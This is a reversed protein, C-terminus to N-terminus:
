RHADLNITFRDNDVGCNDDANMQTPFNLKFRATLKVLNWSAPRPISAAPNALMIM